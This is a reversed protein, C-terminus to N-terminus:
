LITMIDICINCLFLEIDVFFNVITKTYFYMTLKLDTVVVLPIFVAEKISMYMKCFFFGLKVLFLYSYIYCKM